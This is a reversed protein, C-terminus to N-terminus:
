ESFTQRIRNKLAQMEPKSLWIGRIMLGSQHQLNSIDALPNHDLLLLDARQGEAITGFETAKGMALAADHTAMRLVEVRSIGLNTLIRLEELLAFGPVIFPLNGADTGALLRANTRRLDIVLQTLKQANQEGYTDAIQRTQASNDALRKKWIKKLRAPLLRAIATDQLVSAARQRSVNTLHNVLTPCNWTTSAATAAAYGPAAAVVVKPGQWEIYGTLHEITNQGLALADVVPVSDPVHGVVPLAQAKAEAVIARYTLASLGDYVKIFDYGARQFQRVLEVGQEPTGAYAAYDDRRGNIIPSTQYVTPSLQENRSIRARDALQQPAGHMERVSTVGNLLL